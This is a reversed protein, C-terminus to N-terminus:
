LTQKAAAIREDNNNSFEQAATVHYQLKNPCCRAYMRFAIHQLVRGLYSRYWEMLMQCTNWYRRDYEFLDNNAVPPVLAKLASQMPFPTSTSLLWLHASSLLWLGPPLWGQPPPPEQPIAPQREFVSNKPVCSETKQGSNKGQGEPKSAVSADANAMAADASTHKM